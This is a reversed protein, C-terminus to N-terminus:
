RGLFWRLTLVLSIVVTSVLLAALAGLVLGAGFRRAHRTAALQESPPLSRIRLVVMLVAVGLPLGAGMALLVWSVM